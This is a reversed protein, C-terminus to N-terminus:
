EIRCIYDVIYRWREKERERERESEERERERARKERERERERERYRHTDTGNSGAVQPPPTCASVGTVCLVEQGGGSAASGEQVSNCCM